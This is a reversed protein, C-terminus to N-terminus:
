RFARKMLKNLQLATARSYRAYALVSRMDKAGKAQRMQEMTAGAESLRTFYNHRFFYAPVGFHKQFWYDLNKTSVNDYYYTKSIPTGTAKDIKRSVVKKNKNECILKYFIPFFPPTKRALRYAEDTLANMPYLWATAEGGKATLFIMKYNRGDVTFEEPKLTLLEIPRRGTMFALIAFARFQKTTLSHGCDILDLKAKFEQITMTSVIKSPDIIDKYVENTIKPM